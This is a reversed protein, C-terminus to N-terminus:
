KKKSIWLSMGRDIVRQAADLLDQSNKKLPNGKIGALRNITRLHARLRAESAFRLNNHWLAVVKGVALRLQRSYVASQEETIREQRMRDENIRLLDSTRLLEDLSHRGEFSPDKKWRFARLLCEVALGGCYMALAYADGAEHLSRAQRMREISAQFYEEHRFNM